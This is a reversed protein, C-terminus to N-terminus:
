HGLSIEANLLPSGLIGVDIVVARHGKETIKEKAYGFEIGKTDMTGLLLITKM